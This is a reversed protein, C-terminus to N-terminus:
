KGSLWRSLGHPCLLPCVFQSIVISMYVTGYTICIALPFKCYLLPLEAWHERFVYIPRWQFPAPIPLPTWCPHCIHVCIASESQQVDFILSINYFLWWNLETKWDQGVRQLGMFWLVGPRGTWWLSGTQEFVHGNLQHHWGAMEDETTGKEEQGWDRGAASDKGILWSKM